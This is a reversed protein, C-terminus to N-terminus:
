RQQAHERDSHVIFSPISKIIAHKLFHFNGFFVSSNETKSEQFIDEELRMWTLNENRILYFSSRSKVFVGTSLAKTDGDSEFKNKHSPVRVPGM